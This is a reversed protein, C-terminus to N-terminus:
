KQILFATLAPIFPAFITMHNAISQIFSNYKQGFTPKGASERMDIIKSIVDEKNDLLISLDKLTEFLKEDNETLYTNVSNDTSNINIKVSENHINYTNTIGKSSPNRYKSLKETTIQYSDPIAGMGKYFGRDIVRYKEVDGNPLIREIIDEENISITTDDIFIKKEQILAEINEIIKGNKKFLNVKETPFVDFFSM